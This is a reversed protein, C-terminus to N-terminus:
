TFMMKNELTTIEPAREKIEKKYGTQTSDGREGVMVETRQDGYM